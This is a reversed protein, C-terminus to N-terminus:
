CWPGPNSDLRPCSDTHLKYMRWSDTHTEVPHELKRGYDLSTCVIMGDADVDLLGDSAMEAVELSIGDGTVYEEGRGQGNEAPVM